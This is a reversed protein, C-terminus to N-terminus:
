AAPACLSPGHSRIEPQTTVTKRCVLHAWKFKRWLYPKYTNTVKVKLKIFHFHTCWMKNTKQTFFFFLAGNWNIVIWYESFLIKRKLVKRCRVIYINCCSLKLIKAYFSFFVGWLYFGIEINLIIKKLLKVLLLIVCQIQDNSNSTFSFGDNLKMCNLATFKQVTVSKKEPWAPNPTSWSLSSLRSVYQCDSPEWGWRTLMWNLYLRAEARQLDVWWDHLHKMPSLINNNLTMTTAQSVWDMM